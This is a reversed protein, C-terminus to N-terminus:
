GQDYWIVATVLGVHRLDREVLRVPGRALASRPPWAQASDLSGPTSEIKTRRKALRMLSARRDGVDSPSEPHHLASPPTKAQLPELGGKEPARPTTREGGRIEGMVM